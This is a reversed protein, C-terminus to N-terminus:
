AAPALPVYREVLALLGDVDFPKALCTRVGFTRLREATRPLDHSASTVVIPVDDCCPKRRCEEVFAWGDMVPMMLDLVILDPREERLRDLAEVGNTAERVDYGDDRLVESVLGRIADDDEVVLIQPMRRVVGCTVHWNCPPKAVAPLADDRGPVPM